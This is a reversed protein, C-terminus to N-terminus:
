YTLSPIDKLWKEIQKKITDLSDSNKKKVKRELEKYDKFEGTQRPVFEKRYLRIKVLLTQHDQWGGLRDLIKELTKLLPSPIVSNRPCIVLWYFIDKLGKRILHAETDINKMHGTIKKIQVSFLMRIKEILEPDTFPLVAKSLSSMYATQEEAPYKILATHMRNQAEPLIALFFEKLSAYKKKYRQEIGTLLQLNMQLDRYKGLISFLENTAKWDKKRVKKGTLEARLKIYSRMKKVAVRWDHIADTSIEKQLILLNDSFVKQQKEWHKILFNPTAM